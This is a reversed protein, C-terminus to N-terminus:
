QAFSQRVSALKEQYAASIRHKSDENIGLKQCAPVAGLEQPDDDSEHLLMGAVFVVDVMEPQLHTHEDLFEDPVMSEVVSQPFGWSEVICRGIQSHWERLVDNFSDQDGLFEPFDKAKTLIYLKGVEHLLGCMFATEQNLDGKQAAVAHSMCSYQMSRAWVKRIHQVISKHQEAMLLQKVALSMATNRVLELGLRSIAAELSEIKEGTQNHYASNAFVFLKSVLVPDISVVKSVQNFDCSEEELLNRIKIVVDPLSPLSIDGATLERALQQVFEFQQKSPM